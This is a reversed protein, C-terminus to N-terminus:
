PPRTKRRSLPASLSLPPPPPPARPPTHPTGRPRTRSPNLFTNPPRSPSLFTLIPISPASPSFSPKCFSSRPHPPQVPPPVPPHSPFRTSRHMPPRKGRTGGGNTEGETGLPLVEREFINVRPPARVEDGGGDMARRTLRRGGSSSAKAMAAELARRDMGTATRHTQRHRTDRTAGLRSNQM